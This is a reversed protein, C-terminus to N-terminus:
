QKGGREEIELPLTHQEPSKIEKASTSFGILSKDIKVAENVAVLGRDFLTLCGLCRVRDKVKGPDISMSLGSLSPDFVIAMTQYGRCTPCWCPNVIKKMEDHIMKQIEDADREEM